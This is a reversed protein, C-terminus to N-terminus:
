TSPDPQGYPKLAIQARIAEHVARPNEPSNERTRQAGNSAGPEGPM